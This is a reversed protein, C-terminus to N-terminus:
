RWGDITDGPTVVACTALVDVGVWGAGTRGTGPAALARFRRDHVVSGHTAM